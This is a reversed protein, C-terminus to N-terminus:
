ALIKPVSMMGIIKKQFSWKQLEPLVELYDLTEALLFGIAMHTEADFHIGDAQYGILEAPELAIFAVNDRGTDAMKLVMLANMGDVVTSLAAMLDGGIGAEIYKNAPNPVAIVAINATEPLMEWLQDINAAYQLLFVEIAAQIAVLKAEDLQVMSLMEAVQDLSTVEPMMMDGTLTGILGGLMGLLDNGGIGIVIEDIGDSWGEPLLAMQDVMADLTLGNVALNQIKEGEELFLMSATEITNAEDEALGYGVINSDGLALATVGEEIVIGTPAPSILIIDDAAAVPMAAIGLSLAAAVAMSIIKKM